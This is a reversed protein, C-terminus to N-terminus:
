EVMNKLKGIGEIECEIVDGTNLFKPPVFGMGVGAPTGMAIITGAKLTMGRSLESIVHDIKFILLNTNSNQRIEGNVKSRIQLEPCNEFEDATFEKWFVM